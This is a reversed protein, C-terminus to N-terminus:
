FDHWMFEKWQSEMGTQKRSDDGKKFLIPNFM